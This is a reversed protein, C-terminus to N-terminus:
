LTMGKMIILIMASIVIILAIINVTMEIVSPKKYDKWKFVECNSKSPLWNVRHIILHDWTIGKVKLKRKCKSCVYMNSIETNFTGCNSCYFNSKIDRLTIIERILNLILLISTIGFIILSIM